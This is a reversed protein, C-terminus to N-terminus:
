ALRARTAGAARAYAIEYLRYGIVTGVGAVVTAVITGALWWALVVVGVLAAIGVSYQLYAIRIERPKRGLVAPPAGHYGKYWGLYAGVLASLAIMVAAVVIPSGGDRWWGLTAVYAAAWLGTAVYSWWPTPPYDIYPAAEARELDRLQARADQQENSEMTSVM